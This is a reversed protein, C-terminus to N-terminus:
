GATTVCTRRSSSSASGRRSSRAGAPRGAAPPEDPPLVWVLRRLLDSAAEAIGLAATVGWGWGDHVVNDPRPTTTPRTRCGRAAPRAAQLAWQDQASEAAARVRDFSWGPLPQNASFEESETMGTRWAALDRGARWRRLRKYQPYIHATLDQLDAPGSREALVDKRTGRRGAASLNHKELAEVYTRSGQATLAGLLGTLSGAFTPPGARTDPPDDGVRPAHPFVLLMVRRVPGTAPMSEIAKLAALTPTNALAGGDACYRSRDATASGTGWSRM